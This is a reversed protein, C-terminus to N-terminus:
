DQRDHNMGPIQRLSFTEINFPSSFSSPPYAFLGLLCVGSEAMSLAGHCGDRRSMTVDCVGKERLEKM